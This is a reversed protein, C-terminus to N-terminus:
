GNSVSVANFNSSDKRKVPGNEEERRERVAKKMAKDLKDKIEKKRKPDETLNLAKRYHFVANKFEHKHQYHLGLHYHAMDMKGKKGYAEGLFYSTERYDPTKKALYEFASIAADYQKLELRTRGLYFLGEPDEPRISIAGELTKLAEGYKGEFFFVRGLDKLIDPDFARRELAAKLQMAAEDWNGSRALALGYGQRAFPDDPNELVKAKFNMVASKEDGYLATLRTHAKTFDPIEVKANKTPVTNGSEVLRSNLYAIREELAPHTMMYTPIQESGFWERGRIKNLIGVLGEIGYGSKALLQSGIEDAQMEDERSYALAVTQGAAMSGITVANAAAGAGQAGLFIGAAIGALTALNIKPAREIRQSIHRCYVHAVEHAIIGALEEENDMAEMLGSYVFINGAPTAFANYVGQKIVFFKYEFPQPPLTAVIKAGVNRVYGTIVPDDVMEFRRVVEKMFERAIEEEEKVTISLAADPILVFCMGLVVFTAITKQIRNM